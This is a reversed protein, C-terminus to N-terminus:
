NSKEQHKIPLWHSIFDKTFENWNTKSWNNEPFYKDSNKWVESAVFRCLARELRSFQDQDFFENIIPQISKALNSEGYLGTPFASVCFVTNTVRINNAKAWIQLDMLPLLQYSAWKQLDQFGVKLYNDSDINLKERLKHVYVLLDEVLQEDNSYPNICIPYRGRIFTKIWSDDELEINKYLRYQREAEGCYDMFNIAIPYPIHENDKINLHYNTANNMGVLHHFDWVTLDTVTMDDITEVLSLNLDDNDWDKLYKLTHFSDFFDFPSDLIKDIEEIPNCESLDTLEDQTYKDKEAILCANTYVFQRHRLLCLWQFPNLKDMNKYKNIDFSSPLEDTTKIIRKM